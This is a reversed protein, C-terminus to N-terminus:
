TSPCLSPSVYQSLLRDRFERISDRLRDNIGGKHYMARETGSKQLTHIFSTEDMLQLFSSQLYYRLKSQRHHIVANSQIRPEPEIHKDLVADDNVELSNVREQRDMLSLGQGIQFQSTMTESQQDVEIHRGNTLADFPDYQLSVM